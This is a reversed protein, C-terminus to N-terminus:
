RSIKLSRLYNEQNIKIIKPCEGLKLIDPSLQKITLQCLELGAEQIENKILTGVFSSSYMMFQLFLM